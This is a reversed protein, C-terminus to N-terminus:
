PSWGWRWFPPGSSCQSNQYTQLKKENWKEDKLHWVRHTAENQTGNANDHDNDDKSCNIKNGCWGAEKWGPRTPSLRGQNRDRSERQCKKHLVHLPSLPTFLPSCQGQLHRSHGSCQKLSHSTSIAAKKTYFELLFASLIRSINAHQQHVFHFECWVSFCSDKHQTKRATIQEAIISSEKVNYTLLSLVFPLGMQLHLSGNNRTHSKSCASKLSHHESPMVSFKADVM